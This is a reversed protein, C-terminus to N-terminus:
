GLSYKLGTVIEEFWLGMSAVSTPEVLVAMGVSTLIGAAMILWDKRGLRRSSERLIDLKRHVEARHEADLQFESTIKGELQELRESIVRIEADDFPSNDETAEAMAM